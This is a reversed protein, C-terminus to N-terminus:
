LILKKFEDNLISNMMQWFEYSGKEMVNFNNAM